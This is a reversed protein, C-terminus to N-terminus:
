DERLSRLGEIVLGSVFRADTSDLPTSAMLLEADGGTWVIWPRLSLGESQRDVLMKIAGVTGWFVGAALAPITSRGWPAPPIEPHVLPLQMSMAHLSEAALKLGPAIAGGQWVGAASVREVTIASGCSIVIGPGPRDKPRDRLSGLVALARDTGATRPHELEHVIPVDAASRFWVASCAPLTAVFDRLRDAVPPNVSSISWTSPDRRPNWADWTAAWTSPDHLPLAVIDLRGDPLTRGWKLRSNGLDAYVRVM